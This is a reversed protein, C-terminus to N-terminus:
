TATKGRLDNDWLTITGNSNIIFMLPSYPKMEFKTTIHIMNKQLCSIGIIAKNKGLLKKDEPRPGSIDVLAYPMIVDNYNGVGREFRIKVHLKQSTNNALYYTSPGNVDDNGLNLEQPKWESSELEIHHKRIIITTNGVKCGRAILSKRVFEKGGKYKICLEIKTKGSIQVARYVPESDTRINRLVLRDGHIINVILSEIDEGTYNYINLGIPPGATESITGSHHGCGILSIASLAVWVAVLMRRLILISPGM